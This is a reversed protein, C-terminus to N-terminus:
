REPAADSPFAQLRKTESVAMASLILWTTLTVGVSCAWALQLTLATFLQVVLPAFLIVAPAFAVIGVLAMLWRGPPLLTAALVGLALSLPPWTFLFSGGPVYLNVPIALLTIFIVGAAALDAGSTRRRLELMVMVTIVVSLLVVTLLRGIFGGPTQADHLVLMLGYVAAPTIVLALALRAFAGALGRATMRGRRFGIVLMALTVLLLMATLPWVWSTSYCVLVSPTLNFYIADGQDAATIAALEAADMGAFHRALSVAHTGDHYVSAPNLNEVTDNKTHYYYYNGIFAFNLGKLGARRLIRFDSSNPLLRSVDYALSNAIPFPAAAAFHRILHLNGPGTEYMISAGTTGRADFNLVLAFDKVNAQACFGQAGLLGMEEGDTILLQVDRKLGPTARLARMTELLAAVAATDDGAGPGRSVSDYHAVLLIAPSPPEGDRASSAPLRALVNQVTISNGYRDQVTAPQVHPRLGLRELQELLYARVQANAGSGSPHPQVAIARVHTMANELSFEADSAPRRTIPPQTTRLALAILLALAAVQVLRPLFKVMPLTESL